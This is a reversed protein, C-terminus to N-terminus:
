KVRDDPKQGYKYFHKITGLRRKMYLKFRNFNRDNKYWIPDETGKKLLEDIKAHYKKSTYKKLLIPSASLWMKNTEKHHYVEEEYPLGLLDRLLFDIHVVGGAVMFFNTAPLRLNMEFAKYQCDRKDYKLDINAFGTYSIDNLFKEYTEFIDKDYVTYIANNNGLRLPLPNELLIQGLCMMRVKGNQDCYANLSMANTADGPIYDQVIMKDTYTSNYINNLAEYVEEASDLIYVKRKDKIKATRFSISDHPKLVVPFMVDNPDFDNPSSVYTTKPYPIGYEEAVQYFDLKNDLKATLEPSPLNYRVYDKLKDKNAALKKSYVDDSPIVVIISDKNQKSFNIIADVFVNGDEYFNEITTTRLIKSNATDDLVRTCFIDPIIDYYEHFTRAVSYAIIDSGLILPKVKMDKLIKKDLIKNGM